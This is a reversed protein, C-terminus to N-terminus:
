TRWKPAYNIQMRVVTLKHERIVARVKPSMNHDAPMPQGSGLGKIVACQTAYLFKMTPSDHKGQATFMNGSEDTEFIDVGGYILMRAIRLHTDLVDNYTDNEPIDSESHTRGILYTLPSHLMSEDINVSAGSNVLLAVILSNTNM